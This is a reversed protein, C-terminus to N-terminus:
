NKNEMQKGEQRGSRTVSISKEGKSSLRKAVHEPSSVTLEEIGDKKKDIMQEMKGKRKRQMSRAKNQQMIKLQLASEM